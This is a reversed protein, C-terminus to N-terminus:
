FKPCQVHFKSSTVFYDYGARPQCAERSGLVEEVGPIVNRQQLLAWDGAAFDGGPLVGVPVPQLTPQVYEESGVAVEERKQAFDVEIAVEDPHGV